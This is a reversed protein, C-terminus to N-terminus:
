RLETMIDAVGLPMGITAPHWINMRGIDNYVALLFTEIEAGPTQSCLILYRLSKM